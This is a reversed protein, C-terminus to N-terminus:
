LLSARLNMSYKLLIGIIFPRQTAVAIKQNFSTAGWFMGSMNTVNRTDWRNIPKNFEINDKFLESMDEILDTKINNPIVNDDKLLDQLEQKTKPRHFLKM